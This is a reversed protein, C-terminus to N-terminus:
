RQIKITRLMFTVAFYLTEIMTTFVPLSMNYLGGCTFRFPLQSHMMVILMMTKVSRYHKTIEAQYKMQCHWKQQYLANAIIHNKEDLDEVLHAYYYFEIITVVVHIYGLVNVSSRDKIMVFILTSITTVIYFGLGLFIPEVITRMQDVLELVEGHRSICYILRREIGTWKVEDKRLLIRSRSESKRLAIPPKDHFIKAFAKGLIELETQFWHMLFSIMLISTTNIGVYLLLFFSYLDMLVQHLWTVESEDYGIYSSTPKSIAMFAVTTSLNFTTILFFVKWTIFYTKRRLQYSVPDDRHFVHANFYDILRQTIPFTVRVVTMKYLVLLYFMLMIVNYSFTLMPPLRTILVIVFILSPCLLLLVIIWRLNRRGDMAFSHLFRSVHAFCDTHNSFQNFRRYRLKLLTSVRGVTRNWM